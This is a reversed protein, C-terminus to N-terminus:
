RSFGIVICYYVIRGGFSVGCKLMFLCFVLRILGFGIVVVCLMVIFLLYSVCQHGLIFIFTNCFSVTMLIAVLGVFVIM